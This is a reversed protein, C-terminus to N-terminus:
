GDTCTPNCIDGCEDEFVDEKGELWLSIADLFSKKKILPAAQTFNAHTYCAASFM